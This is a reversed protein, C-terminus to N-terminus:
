DGSFQNEPSPESDKVAADVSNENVTEVQVPEAEVSKRLILWIFVIVTVLSLVSWAAGAAISAVFGWIALKRKRKVIGLILPILGLVLGVGMGILTMQLYTLEIKQM